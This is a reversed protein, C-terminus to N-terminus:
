KSRKRRILLAAAGSLAIISMPEPAPSAVVSVDDIEVTAASTGGLSGDALLTLASVSGLAVATGTYHTWQGPWGLAAGSAITTPGATIPIGGFLASFSNAGDSNAWFSITYTKGATTGVLQSVADIGGGDTLYLSRTGDYVYQNTVDIGVTGQTVIWSGGDFSTGLGYGYTGSGLGSAASEFDGDTVLNQAQSLVAVSLFAAAPLGRTILRM